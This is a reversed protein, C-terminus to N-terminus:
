GGPLKGSPEGSNEQFYIVYLLFLPHDCLRFPSPSFFQAKDWGSMPKAESASGNEAGFVGLGNV